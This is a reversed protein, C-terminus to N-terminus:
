LQQYAVVVYGRYTRCVNVEAGKFVVEFGCQKDVVSVEGELQLVNEKFVLGVANEKVVEGVKLM